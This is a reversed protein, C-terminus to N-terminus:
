TYSPHTFCFSILPFLELCRADMKPYTLEIHHSESFCLWDIKRLNREARCMVLCKACPTIKALALKLSVSGLIEHFKHCRLKIHLTYFALDGLLTIM